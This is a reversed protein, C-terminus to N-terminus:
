SHLKEEGPTSIPQTDVPLEQTHDSLPGPGLAAESPPRADLTHDPPPGPEPAHSPLTGHVVSGSATNDESSEVIVLPDIQVAENEGGQRIIREIYPHLGPPLPVLISQPLNDMQLEISAANELLNSGPCCLSELLGCCREKYHWAILGLTIAVLIAIFSFFAAWDPTPKDNAPPTTGLPTTVSAQLSAADRPCRPHGVLSPQGPCWGPLPDPDQGPPWRCCGGGERTTWAADLPRLFLLLLLLLLACLRIPDTARM